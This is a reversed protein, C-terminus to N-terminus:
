IKLINIKAINSLASSEQQYESQFQVATTYHHKSVKVFQCHPGAPRACRPAEWKSVEGRANYM